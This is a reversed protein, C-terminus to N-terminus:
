GRFRDLLDYAGGCTIKNPNAGLGTTVTDPSVLPWEDRSPILYSIVAGM